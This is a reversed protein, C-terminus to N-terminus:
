SGRESYKDCSRYLILLGAVASILSGVVIAFRALIALMRRYSFMTFCGTLKMLRLILWRLLSLSHQWRWYELVGIQHTDFGENSNM